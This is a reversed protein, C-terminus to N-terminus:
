RGSKRLAQIDRAIQEDTIGRAVLQRSLKRSSKRFAQRREALPIREDLGPWPQISGIVKGHSTILVPESGRFLDAPRARLEQLSATRMSTISVPFCSPTM